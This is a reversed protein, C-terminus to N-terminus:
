CIFVVVIQHQIRNVLGVNHNIDCECLLILESVPPFLWIELAVLELDATILDFPILTCM